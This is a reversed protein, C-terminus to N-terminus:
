AAVGDRSDTSALAARRANEIRALGLDTVQYEYWEAGRRRRLFGGRYLRGIAVSYANQARRDVLQSPIELVASLDFSSIWDFHRAARLIRMLNDEVMDDIPWYTFRQWGGGRRRRRRKSAPFSASVDHEDCRACIIFVPGGDDLQRPRLSATGTVCIACHSM